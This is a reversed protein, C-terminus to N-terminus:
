PIRQDVRYRRAQEPFYMERARQCDELRTGQGPGAQSRGFQPAAEPVDHSRSFSEGCYPDRIRFGRAEMQHEARILNEREVTNHHRLHEGQVVGEESEGPAMRDQRWAHGCLEHGLIIWPDYNELRGSMTAAGFTRSSDPTPVVVFGSRAQRNLNSTMPETVVGGGITLPDRFNHVHITWTNNSTLLDCLCTSGTPTSSEEAQSDSGFIGAVGGILAGIIAGPVAGIGLFYAGIRGGEVFGSGIGRGVREFFGRRRCFEGGIAVEGSTRDVTPSGGPSLQRLYDEVVDGRTQQQGSQNASAPQGIPDAPRDARIRRRIALRRSSGISVARNSLVENSVHDAEREASDDAAGIELQSDTHIASQNQQAVHALEHAILSRGETNWPQFLGRDFVIHSGFTYAEANVARASEAARSDAHVRVDRFSRQFRPEFSDLTTNDLPQGPSKLVQHVLPPAITPSVANVAARQLFGKAKKRCGDCEGGGITHQGCACARQLLGGTVPTLSRTPAVNTQLGCSM